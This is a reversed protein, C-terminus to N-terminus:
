NPKKKSSNFISPNFHHLKSPISIRFGRPALIRANPQPVRYSERHQCSVLSSFIGFLLIVQVRLCNQSIEM